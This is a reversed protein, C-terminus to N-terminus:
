LGDRSRTAVGFSCVPRWFFLNCSCEVDPHCLQLDKSWASELQRAMCLRKISTLQGANSKVMRCSIRVCGCQCSAEFLPWKCANSSICGFSGKVVVCVWPLEWGQMSLLMCVSRVSAGGGLLHFAFEKAQFQTLTSM